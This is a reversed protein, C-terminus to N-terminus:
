RTKLARSILFFVEKNVSLTKELDEENHSYCIYIPGGRRFLIGRKANEQLFFTMLDLNFKEDPYLFKFGMLPPYGLFKCAVKNEEALRNLSEMLRTGYHWLHEIVPKEKYEKGTAVLAALSLTEGGYTTSILLDKMGSLFKKRGVLTAIPMGNAMGKAFCALDPVVKFYEQAGGNAMRFGTVIEDFILLTNHADALEKVWELYGDQAKAWYDNPTMVIAAVEGRNEELKNKLSDPSSFDNYTFPIILNRLGKPVGKGLPLAQGASWVDHWGHYGFSVIKEKGTYARAVRVAAATAEAGTKFFRVMEAAPVTDIIVEAAEIELPHMLPFIIGKKLQEKIASDVAPYGYGLSIPGLAMIYDLYENGDVDWIHSGKAKEIYIPFAGPVFCGPRKSGTQSAGPIIQLAKNYSKKSKKININEM